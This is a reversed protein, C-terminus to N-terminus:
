RVGGLKIAIVVGEVIIGMFAGLLLRSAWTWASELDEIRRGLDHEIQERLKRFEEFVAQPVNAMTRMDRELESVRTELRAIEVDNM